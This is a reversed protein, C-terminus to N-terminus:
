SYDATVAYLLESVAIGASLAINAADLDDRHWTPPIIIVRM